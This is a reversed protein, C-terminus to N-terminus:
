SGTSKLRQATAAITSVLDKFIPAFPIAILGVIIALALYRSSLYGGLISGGSLCVANSPGGAIAAACADAFLVGGAFLALLVAAGAALCRAILRYRRDAREYAADLRCDISADFRSLLAAQDDTLPKGGNIAIVATGFAKPEIQLVKAIHPATEPSLGLRMLSKAAAKQLSKDCGNLWLAALAEQWSQGTGLAARLTTDFPALAQKVFIFGSQDLRIWLGKSIDVLGLAAAGLAFVAGIIIGIQTWSGDLVTAASQPDM